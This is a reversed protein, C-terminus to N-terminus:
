FIWNIYCIIFCDFVLVPPPIQWIYFNGPPSFFFSIGEDAILSGEQFWYYDIQSGAITTRKHELSCLFGHMEIVIM